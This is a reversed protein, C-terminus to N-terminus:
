EKYFRFKDVGRLHDLNVFYIGSKLDSTDFSLFKKEDIQKSMLVKGEVNMIQASNSNTIGDINLVNSVPNPYIIIPSITQEINESLGIEIKYGPFTHKFPVAPLLPSLILNASIYITVPFSGSKSPVGFVNACGNDGGLYSCNSNNCVYTLGPPLGSVSDIKFSQITAGTPGGVSSADKPAKFNLDTSYAKNILGSPLNENADPWVGFTSDAFNIGPICSQASFQLCLVYSVVIVLVFMKKM